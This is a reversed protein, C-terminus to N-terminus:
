NICGLVNDVVYNHQDVTRTLEEIHTTLQEILQIPEDGILPRIAPLDVPRLGHQISCPIEVDLPMDYESSLLNVYVSIYASYSKLSDVYKRVGDTEGYLTTYTELKPPDPILPELLPEPFKSVPDAFSMSHCSGLYTCIITIFLLRNIM